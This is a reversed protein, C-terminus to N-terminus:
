SGAAPGSSATVAPVSASEDGPEPEDPLNLEKIRRYLRPRSIGLLEAARSKNQGARHMAHEILRREVQTLLEDLPTLPPAPPPPLFAAGLHGRVEAPIDEVEILDGTGTGHAAEVVRALERLNGPWDYAVLGTLAAPSFGSRQRPGRQNLRELFHQAILPLEDLRERLAALRIVLTTLAYFLEPLLREARLAAEPDATSTAVLRVGRGLAAVLRAQLDRPLDLIDGILLTTGEPQILRPGAGDFRDEGGFLERALVEPPLAACNFAVFPAGPRAGQQHITRAVLRKGTGPEGVILVAVTATAAAGVQQLLRAHALGRGILTDFGYRGHLRNRVELLESRLREVEGDPFLSPADGDAAGVVGLIGLRTGTEDHLPWYVVRRWKREGGAHIILTAAAAPRGARAEAPPYFSGGLGSLDGARTPGHAHCVLGLVSEAPHGTLEEWAQNVWILKQDPNLCFAPERAKQLVSELRLGSVRTSAM